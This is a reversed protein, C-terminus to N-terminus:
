VLGVLNTATTLEVLILRPAINLTTGAPVNSFLVAQTDGRLIVHLNGAGGVYVSKPLIPPPATDSPTIAFANLAPGLYERKGGWPDTALGPNTSVTM